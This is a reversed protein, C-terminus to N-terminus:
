CEYNSNEYKNVKRWEHKKERYYNMYNDYPDAIDQNLKKLNSPPDCEKIMSGLEDHM